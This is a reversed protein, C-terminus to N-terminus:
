LSIGQKGKYRTWAWRGLNRSDVGCGIIKRKAKNVTTMMCGGPQHITDIIDKKNNAKIPTNGGKWWGMTREEWTDIAGVKNWNLNTEQLGMIDFEYKKLFQRLRDNKAKWHEHKLGNVNLSLCLVSDDYIDRNTELEDGYIIKLEQSSSNDQQRDTRFNNGDEQNM